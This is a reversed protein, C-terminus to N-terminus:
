WTCAQLDLFPHDGISGEELPHAFHEMNCFAPDPSPFTSSCKTLPLIFLPFGRALLHVLQKGHYLLAHSCGCLCQQLCCRSVAVLAPSPIQQSSCNLKLQMLPRSLKLQRHQPGLWPVKQLPARLSQTTGHSCGAEGPWGFVLIQLWLSIRHRLISLWM